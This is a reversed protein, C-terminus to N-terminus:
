MVKLFSKAEITKRLSNNHFSSIIKIIIKKGKKNKKENEDTQIHIIFKLLIM